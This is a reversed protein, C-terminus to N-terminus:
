PLVQPTGVTLILRLTPEGPDGPGFFSAFTLAAPETATLLALTSPPELGDAGPGALLTRLFSTVPVEVPTGALTSFAEPAVASGFGATQSGGLPSKPLTPPSLVPRVDLRVTDNPQFPSATAARTLVLGAYSVQGATPTFPCGVAACLEPPGTLPPVAVQM